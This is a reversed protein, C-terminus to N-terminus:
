SKAELVAKLALCGALEETKATQTHIISYPPRSSDISFYYEGNENDPSWSAYWSWERREIERQVEAFHLPNTSPSWRADHRASMGGSKYQWRMTPKECGDRCEAQCDEFSDYCGGRQRWGCARVWVKKWGFVNEALWADLERLEDPEM